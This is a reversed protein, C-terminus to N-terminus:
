KKDFGPRVFQRAKEFEADGMRIIRQLNALMPIMDDLMEPLETALQTWASLSREAAILAIKASGDFDRQFGNLIEWGDDEMKGRMARDFKASIFWSYWFIVELSQGIKRIKEVVADERDLGMEVFQIFEERKAELAPRNADHWASVSKGYTKCEKLLTTSKVSKRLAEDKREMEVVEEATPMELELGHAKAMEILVQKTKAFNDSLQQWYAESDEKGGMRKAEEIGVACRDAFECRECWRDCYNYIGSILKTTKKM